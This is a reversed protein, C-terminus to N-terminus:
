YPSPVNASMRPHVGGVVGTACYEFAIARVPYPSSYLMCIEMLIYLVIPTGRAPKSKDAIPCPTVVARRHSFAASAALISVVPGMYVRGCGLDAPDFMVSVPSFHPSPRMRLCERVFFSLFRALGLGM